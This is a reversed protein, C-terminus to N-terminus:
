LGKAKQKLWEATTRKTHERWLDTEYLAQGRDLRESHQKISISVRKGAWSLIEQRINAGFANTLTEFETRTPPGYRERFIAATRSYLEWHFDCDLFALKKDVMYARVLYFLETHRITYYSIDDVWCIGQKSDYFGSAMGGIVTQRCKKISRTLDSFFKIGMFSDPENFTHGARVTFIMLLASLLLKM